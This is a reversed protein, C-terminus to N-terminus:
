EDGERTIPLNYITMVGNQNKTYNWINIIIRKLVSASPDIDKVKMRFKLSLESPLTFSVSNKFDGNGLAMSLYSNNYSYDYCTGEDDFVKSDSCQLSGNIDHDTTNEISFEIIAVDNDDVTCSKVKLKYCELESETKLKGDDRKKAPSKYSSTSTSSSSTSSELATNVLENGVKKLIKTIDGTANAPNWAGLALILTLLIIAKRM